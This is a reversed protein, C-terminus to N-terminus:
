YKKIGRIKEFLMKCNRKLFLKLYVEMNIGVKNKSIVFHKLCKHYIELPQANNAIAQIYEEAFIAEYSTKRVICSEIYYGVLALFRNNLGIFNEKSVQCNWNTLMNLIDKYMMVITKYYDDKLKQVYNQMEMRYHYFTDSLVEVSTVWNYYRYNFVIDQSRRLAPFKIKHEDIISKKYLIRTPACVAEELYLPIYQKRVEEVNNLKIKRLARTSITTIGDRKYEEIYGSIILDSNSIKYAKVYAEIMDKEIWDDPDVFM